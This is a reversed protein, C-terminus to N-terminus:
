QLLWPIVGAPRISRLGHPGNKPSALKRPTTDMLKMLKAQHRIEKRRAQRLQKEYNVARSANTRSIVLDNTM